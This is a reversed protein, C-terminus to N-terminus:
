RRRSGTAMKELEALLRRGKATLEGGPRTSDAPELIGRERALRVWDRAQTPRIRHRTATVQVPKPSRWAEAYTHAVSVLVEDPIPKRGGHKAGAGPRSPWFGELPGGAPNADFKGRMIGKAERIAEGVKVTKLIRATLGSGPVVARSGVYCGSWEEPDLSAAVRDADSERPFIRIEAVIPNGSKSPVIRLMARWAGLEQRIWVAQVATRVYYNRADEPLDQWELGLKTATTFSVVREGGHAAVAHERQQKM